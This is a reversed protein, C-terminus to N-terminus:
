TRAFTRVDVKGNFVFNVEAANLRRRRRSPPLAAAAGDHRQGSRLAAARRVPADAPGQGSRGLDSLGAARVCLPHLDSAHRGAGSPPFQRQREVLVTQRAKKEADRARRALHDIVDQPLGPTVGVWNDPLLDVFLREGAAMSNVTVKRILALRVATGDPDRRAASIYAGANVAVRDLKVDVPKKFGIVIIGNAIRVEADNEEPFTFILRAYGGNTNVSVEGKMTEARAAGPFLFSIAALLLLELVVCLIVARVGLRPPVQAEASARMAKLTLSRSAM